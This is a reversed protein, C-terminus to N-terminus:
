FGSLFRDEAAYDFLDWPYAALQPFAARWDKPRVEALWDIAPDVAVADPLLMTGRLDRSTRSSLMMPRPISWPTRGISGEATIDLDVFKPFRGLAECVTQGIERVSPADDDSVNFVGGANARIAALATEAIARAATTQFRSQGANALPIIARGDLM